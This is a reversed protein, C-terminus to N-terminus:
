FKFKNLLRLGAVLVVIGIAISAWLMLGPGTEIDKLIEENEKEQKDEKRTSKDFEKNLATKNSELSNKQKTSKSYTKVEIDGGQGTIVGNPDISFPDKTKITVFTLGERDSFMFERIEQDNIFELKGTDTQIDLISSKEFSAKKSIQKKVNCSFLILILIIAKM